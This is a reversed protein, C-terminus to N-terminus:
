CFQLLLADALRVQDITLQKCCLIRCALVFHRWCELNEGSLIDHLVLLSFHITWNKWQDATFSSFGSRVKYPIRGIDSPVMSSDIRCQIASFQSDSIIGREIWVTKLFHKATGLFLNHMPDVILMRPADFYPLKLLVSYRCGSESEGAQLASRTIPNKLKLAAQRHVSGTRIIWNERDFGSYDMTGVSGKFRKFLFSNLDHEPEQPGPILGALLINEQKNRISRPLNMLTLYIAGLSYTVHKFPQFFDTNLMLALNGAESLFSQGGFSQFDKWIKGDYM